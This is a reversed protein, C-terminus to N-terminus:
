EVDVHGVDSRVLLEKSLLRGVVRHRPDVVRAVGRAGVTVNRAGLELAHVYVITLALPLEHILGAGKGLGVCEVLM